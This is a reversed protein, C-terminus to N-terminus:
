ARLRWSKVMREQWERGLFETVCAGHRSLAHAIAGGRLQIGIHHVTLGIKFGLLDGAQREVIPVGVFWGSAEVWEVMLSRDQAQCWRPAGDPVQVTAPLWGAELYIAHVLRHCCVGAGRRCAGAEFPTGVWTRAVAELRDLEHDTPQKM